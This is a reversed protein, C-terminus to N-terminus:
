KRCREIVYREFKGSDRAIDFYKGLYRIAKKKSSSSLRQENEILAVFAAEHDFLAQRAAELAGNNACYGRYVRQTVSKIGLAPNPFAYDADVLGASDFDYPVPVALDDPQLPEPGVLKVNHCCESPDPGSLAAWDANGIMYQFLAMLAGAQPELQGIPLQGIDIKKLGNRKAVDSDDEILFAFRRDFVDGDGSDVYEVQLPRVRFSYESLRNYMRYILMELVYFQDYRDSKNYHTVMKLSNQGRFATGKVAEKEFRLRIPPFRCADQRKKGRREVTMALKVTEGNADVYEITAPYAGQEDENREIEGWPATMTVALASEVEFLRAPKEDSGSAAGQAAGQAVAVSSWGLAALLLLAAPRCGALVNHLASRYLM